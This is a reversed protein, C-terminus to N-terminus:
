AYIVVFTDGFTDFIKFNVNKTFCGTSSFNLILSRKELDLRIPLYGIKGKETVDNTEVRHITLDIVKAIDSTHVGFPSVMGMKVTRARIGSIVLDARTMSGYCLSEHRLQDCWSSNIPAAGPDVVEAGDVGLDRTM